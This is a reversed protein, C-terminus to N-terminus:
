DMESVDSVVVDNEDIEDGPLPETVEVELPGITTASKHREDDSDLSKEVNVMDPDQINMKMQQDEESEGSYYPDIYAEESLQNDVDEEFNGESQMGANEIKLALTRGTSTVPNNYVEMYRRITLNYNEILTRNEPDTSLAIASYAISELLRGSAFTAVSLIQYPASSWSRDKELWSNKRESRSFAAEIYRIAKDNMNVKPHTCLEAANIYNDIYTPDEKIGNDYSIMADVIDGTASYSDGIFLMTNAVELPSMTDRYKALMKNALVICDDYKGEYYYQHMLYQHSAFDDPNEEIRLELLPLYNSRSKEPDPFHHLRVTDMLNIWHINGPYIKKMIPVDEGDINETGTQHKAGEKIELTEHVPFRWEFNRTHIKDYGFVRAPSGDDLHSWAYSYWARDTHDKDWTSRLVDAWGPEFVEDLDTSVLINADDPAMAMADNRPTDFRWPDYTKVWVKDVGVERLKQVTDDTSGTDLVVVYDAEKMSEYWREVFQSENKCIAYVCIKNPMDSM